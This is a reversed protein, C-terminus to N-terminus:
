NRFLNFGSTSASSNTNLTPAEGPVVPNSLPATNVLSNAGILDAFEPYLQMAAKVNGSTVLSRFAMARKGADTAKNQAITSNLTHHIGLIADDNVRKNQFLEAADIRQNALQEQNETQANIMAQQNEADLIAREQQIRSQSNNINIEADRQFADAFKQGAVEESLSSGTPVRTRLKFNPRPLNRVVGTNLQPAVLDVRSGKRLRKNQRNRGIAMATPIAFRALMEGVNADDLNINPLNRFDKTEQDPPM